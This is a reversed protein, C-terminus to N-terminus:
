GVALTKPKGGDVVVIAKGPFLGVVSVDTAGAGAACLWLGAAAMGNLSRLFSLSRTMFGTAM